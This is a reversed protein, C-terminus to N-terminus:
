FTMQQKRRSNAEFWEMAHKHRFRSDYRQAFYEDVFEFKTPDRSETQISEAVLRRTMQEIRQRDYKFVVNLLDALTAARERRVECCLGQLIKHVIRQAYCQSGFLLEQVLEQHQEDHSAMAICESFFATISEQSKQHDLLLGCIAREFLRQLFQGNQILYRHAKRLYQVMLENFDEVIDMNVFFTDEDRLPGSFTCQTM